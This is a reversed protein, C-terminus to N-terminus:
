LEVELLEDPTKTYVLDGYEGYEDMNSWYGSLALKYWAQTRPKVEPTDDANESGGMLCHQAATLFAGSRAARREVGASVDEWQEEPSKRAVGRFADLATRSSHEVDLFILCRGRRSAHWMGGKFVVEGVWVGDETKEIRYKGRGQPRLDYGCERAKPANWPADRLDLLYFEGNSILEKECDLAAKKLEASTIGWMRQSQAAEQLFLYTIKTGTAGNKHADRVTVRAHMALKKAQTMTAM